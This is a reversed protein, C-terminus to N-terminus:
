NSPHLSRVDVTKHARISLVLGIFSCLALTAFALRCGAIFDHMAASAQLAQGAYVAHHMDPSLGSFALSLGLAAGVVMGCNQLTSRVANAIGRRQAAVSVMVVSNNSTQFMGIGLGALALGVGMSFAGIDAHLWCAMWLLGATNLALGASSLKIGRYQSLLKGTLASGVMMGLPLPAVSLGAVFADAGQVNQRFLALLLVSSTQALCLLFVCAYATAREADTFLKLDLLPAPSRYQLPLFILLAAIGVVLSVMVTTSGWGQTGGVSLAYVLCSLAICSLVAGRWDFAEAGAIKRNPLVYAAGVMALVGIPVNLYFISRWGAQLILLGGLIPGISQSIASLTSNIGLGLGLARAPFADTILASTNTIVSAAGIAQLCRFFLITNASESLGCGLSSLTLLLLGGLYLRKRGWMDSLRGFVMILATMVVMYSLLIWNAQEASAGLESAMIPLAVNLTSANIFCLSVGLATVALVKWGHRMHEAESSFSSPATQM